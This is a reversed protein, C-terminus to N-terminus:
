FSTDPFFFFFDGRGRYKDNILVWKFSVADSDTFWLMEHSKKKLSACNSCTVPPIQECKLVVVLITM